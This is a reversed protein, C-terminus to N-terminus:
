ETIGDVNGREDGVIRISIRNPICIISDNVKSIKFRKCIKKPCNTDKVWVIGNSIVISYNGLAGRFSLIRNKDLYYEFRGDPTDILVKKGKENAASLVLISVAFLFFISIVLFDALNPFISKYKM